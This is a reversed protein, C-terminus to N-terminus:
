AGIGRRIRELTSALDEAPLAPNYLPSEAAHTLLHLCVAASDRRVSV